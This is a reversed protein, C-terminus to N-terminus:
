YFIGAFGRPLALPAQQVAVAEAGLWQGRSAWLRRGGTGGRPPASRPVPRRATAIGHRVACVSTRQPVRKAMDQFRAFLVAFPSQPALSLPETGGSMGGWGNVDRLLNSIGAKMCASLAPLQNNLLGESQPYTICSFPSKRDVSCRNFVGCRECSQRRFFPRALLVGPPGDGPFRRTSAPSVGAGSWATQQVAARFVTYFPSSAKVSSVSQELGLLHFLFARMIVLLSLM